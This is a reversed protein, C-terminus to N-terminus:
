RGDFLVLERTLLIFSRAHGIPGNTLAEIAKVYARFSVAGTEERDYWCPSCGYYDQPASMADIIPKRESLPESWVVRRLHTSIGSDSVARALTSQWLGAFESESVGDSRRLFHYVKFGEVARTIM